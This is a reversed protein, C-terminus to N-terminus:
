KKEALKELESAAITVDGFIQNFASNFEATKRFENFLPSTLYDARGPTANAGIKHMLKAAKDFEKKLVNVALRFSDNTASWDQGRLIKLCAEQNEAVATALAYNILFKLRMDEDAHRKELTTCAFHLLVKALKDREEKLLSLTVDYLLKDAQLTEKPFLKRWLVQGLKVGIEYIVDFAVGFYDPDIELIDGLKLPNSDVGGKKCNELYLRSVVGDNHVCLNGRETIEVFNPWLPLDNRLVLGFKKEMWDFQESHSKRLLTEVEKELVYERAVEISGFGSLESFTLSRESNDLLGPVASFVEKMLNGLYADYQSVLAVFFSRPISRMSAKLRNYQKVIMQLDHDFEPSKVRFRKKGNKQYPEAKTRTFKRLEKLAQTAAESAGSVAFLLGMLLSDIATIFQETEKAIGSRDM